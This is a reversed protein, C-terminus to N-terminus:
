DEAEHIMQLAQELERKTKVDGLEAALTIGKQYYLVAKAVDGQTALVNAYHYYAPLYREDANLIETFWKKSKDFDGQWYYEMALSYKLLLDAPKQELMNKLIDIRTNM